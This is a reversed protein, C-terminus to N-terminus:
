RSHADDHPTADPDIANARLDRRAPAEPWLGTTAGLGGGSAGEGTGRDLEDAQGAVSDAPGTTRRPDYPPTGDAAFVAGGFRVVVAAAIDAREDADVVVVAGGSPTALEVDGASAAAFGREALGDRLATGPEALWPDAFGAAELARAAASAADRGGFVGAVSDREDSSDM